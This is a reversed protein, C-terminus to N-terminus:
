LWPGLEPANAITHPRGALWATVHNLPAGAVEPPLQALGRKHQIDACLARDFDDPLDALGIGVALDVSHVCVERARMWPTEAAPVTRGQATVVPQQWQQGTLQDMAADLTEASETLWSRLEDASMTPGKAIGSAREDASAYMPTEIGTAAWQVLHGIAEANAAVHAILHKRTWGPLPTPADFSEDDLRAVADAMLMTGFAMWRRSDTLSRNM